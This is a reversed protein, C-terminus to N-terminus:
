VLARVQLTARLAWGRRARAKVARRDRRVREGGGRVVEHRRSPALGRRPNLKRRGAEGEDCEGHMSVWGDTSKAETQVRTVFAAAAQLSSPHIRGFGL